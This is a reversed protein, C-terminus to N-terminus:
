WTYASESDYTMDIKPLYAAGSSFDTTTVSMASISGKPQIAAAVEPIEELDKFPMTLALVGAEADFSVYDAGDLQLEYNVDLVSRIRVETADGDVLVRIIVTNGNADDGLIEYGIVGPYDAPNGGLAFAVQFDKRDSAFAVGTFDAEPFVNTTGPVGAECGLLQCNGFNADGSVDTILPEDVPDAEPGAATAAATSAFASAALAGALALNTIKKM